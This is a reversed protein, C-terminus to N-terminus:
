DQIINATKYSTTSTGSSSKQSRDSKDEQCEFHILRLYRKIFLLFVGVCCFWVWLM